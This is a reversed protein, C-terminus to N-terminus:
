DPHVPAPSSTAAVDTVPPNPIGSQKTSKKRPRMSVFLFLIVSSGLGVFYLRHVPPNKYLVIPTVIAVRRPGLKEEAAKVLATLLISDNGGGVRLPFHEVGLAVLHTEPNVKITLRDRFEAHLDTVGAFRGHFRYPVPNHSRRDLALVSWNNGEKDSIKRPTLAPTPRDLAADLVQDSLLDKALTETDGDVARVFCVHFSRFSKQREIIMAMLIAVGVILIFISDLGIRIKRRQPSNNILELDRKKDRFFLM